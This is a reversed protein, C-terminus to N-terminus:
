QKFDIKQGACGSHVALLDVTLARIRNYREIDFKDKCYALGSQAIAQLETIHEIM